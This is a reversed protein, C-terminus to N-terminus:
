QFLEKRLIADHTSTPEVTGDRLLIDEPSACSNSISAEYGCNVEALLIAAQGKNYSVTLKTPPLSTASSGPPGIKM